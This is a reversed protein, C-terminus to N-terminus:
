FPVDPYAREPDCDVQREAVFRTPNGFEDYDTELVIDSLHRRMSDFSPATMEWGENEKEERLKIARSTGYRRERDALGGATSKALYKALYGATKRGDDIREIHVIHGGGYRSWVASLWRQPIFTDVLVHLHARGNKQLELVWIYNLKKKLFRKLPMHFKHWLRKIFKCTNTDPQLKKPDLTLVLMAVLGHKEIAEGIEWSLARAKKPGCVPCRWKKCPVRRYERVQRGDAEIVRTVCRRGCPARRAGGSAPALGEGNCKHKYTDLSDSAM